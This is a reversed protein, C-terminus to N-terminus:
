PCLLEVSMSVEGSNDECASDSRYCELQGGVIDIDESGAVLNAFAEEPTAYYTGAPTHLEDFTIGTCVIVWMFGTAPPSHPPAWVTGASPLATARYTGDPLGGVVVANEVGPCNALYDVTITASLTCAGAEGCYTGMACDGDRSCGGCLECAQCPGGCDVDTELGSWMGDTCTPITCWITCEDLDSDNGDDCQEGLGVVGDGCGPAPGTDTGSGAGTDTTAPGTDAGPGPGSSGDASADAGSTATASPDVPGSGSGEEAPSTGGFMVPDGDGGQGIACASAAACAVMSAAVRALAAM